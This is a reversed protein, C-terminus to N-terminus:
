KCEKERKKWRESEKTMIKNRQTNNINIISISRMHTHKSTCASWINLTLIRHITRYVRFNFLILLFSRSCCCLYKMHPFIAETSLFFLTNSVINHYWLTSDIYCLCCCNFMLVLLFRNQIINGDIHTLSPQRSHRIIFIDASHFFFFFSYLFPDVSYPFFRHLTFSLSNSLLM